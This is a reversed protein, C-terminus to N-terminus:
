RRVLPLCVRSPNGVWLMDKNDALNVEPTQTTAEAVLALPTGALLADEYEGALTFTYTGGSPITAINWVYRSGGQLTVTGPVAQWTTNVIQAPVLHTLTVQGAALTGQNHVTLTYEVPAGPATNQGSVLAMTLALDAAEGSVVLIKSQYPALALSGWVLNQDLDKYVTSGLDFTKTAATDNYFIQSNPPDGAALTFWHELSAGDKGSFSRWSALSRAGGASIHDAKYPSFFYNNNSSGLRSADALALTWADADLSYLINGTHTSLSAPAEGLYVQGGGYPYTYGNDYLTNGTVSGTSNQFLIGHVTSRIITNGTVAVDRSYNDIYLGFGFWDDFDNRCGDTNGLTDVIINQNFALDHVASSGLSDRGFTRVGGCDGKVACAEVIVNHELTNHHGFIDVGNYAIRELRNNAILNSHGTDNAQDIKIRIGDGDETCQGGGDDFACGLGSKGLNAVAGVDGIVNASFFSERSYLNIGMHNARSITNDSVTLAYGGRWGDPRGDWADYVWTALDIGMADVDSIRNYQLVLHHPEYHAFNTPLAIGSRFWRRLDLHEVTVYAVGQGTLDEGLTVGGWSRDDDKLIVSGEIQGDAPAGSEAYLYLRHTSTDYYWEGDQDLTAPHNNLFYGWGSCGGWCDNGAGLTLVHGSSGTVQRNLIYWRMGKIHVVAGSWNTAPLQNDGIQNWAPQSDISAYGGDAADLNPWRGLPLRATGRFLQNVGYGFKGANAGASLDAVYVKGSYLTWGYVPRAGSLVPLDTCGDPYTGFTIPQGSVGSHTVYLPDARWTDGCKFRVRDGPQLSLSNVKSVTAFPTSESLGNNADNGSSSSVYYTAAQPASRGAAAAPSLPLAAILLCLFIWRFSSFPRSM